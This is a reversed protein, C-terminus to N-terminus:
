SECRAKLARAVDDFGRQVWRGTVLVVLGVGRGTFTDTTSYRTGGGPLDELVQVRDATLFWPALMTTGWSFCDGEVYSTIWETQPIVLPPRLAVRMSVRAGPEFTTDVSTTFPNWEPYRSVDRLVAWVRDRPADIEITSSIARSM